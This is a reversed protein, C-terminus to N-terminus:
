QIIKHPNPINGGKTKKALLVSLCTQFMKLDFYEIFSRQYYLQILHACVSLIANSIIQMKPIFGATQGKNVFREIKTLM